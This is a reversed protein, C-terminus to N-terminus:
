GLSIRLKRQVRAMIMLWFKINVQLMYMVHTVRTDIINLLLLIDTNMTPQLHKFPKCHCFYKYMYRPEKEQSDGGLFFLKTKYWFKSQGTM